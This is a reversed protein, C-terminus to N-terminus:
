CGNVSVLTNGSIREADVDVELVHHYALHYIAFLMSNPKSPEVGHSLDHISVAEKGACRLVARCVQDDVIHRAFQALMVVNKLRHGTRICTETMVKFTKDNEVCWSEAARFKRRNEEVDVLAAPKCEVVQEGTRRVVHFDPTYRHTKNQWLYEILFPQEHFELVDTDYKLLYIFDQEITSEFGVMRKSKLSPYHGIINGGRNSIKRIPM